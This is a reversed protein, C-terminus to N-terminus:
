SREKALKLAARIADRCNGNSSPNFLPPFYKEAIGRIQEDTLDAGPVPLRNEVVAREPETLEAGWGSFIFDCEKGTLNEYAVAVATRMPVDAGHQCFAAEGIKCSWIKKHTLDASPAPASGTLGSDGNRVQDEQTAASEDAVRCPKFKGRILAADKEIQDLMEQTWVPAASQLADAAEELDRTVDGEEDSIGASEKLEIVYGRIRNALSAREAPTMM